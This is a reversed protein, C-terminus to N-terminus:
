LINTTTGNRVIQLSWVSRGNRSIITWTPECLSSVCPHRRQGASTVVRVQRYTTIFYQNPIPAASAGKSVQGASCRPSPSDGTALHDHTYQSQPRNSSAPHPLVSNPCRAVLRQLHRGHLLRQFPPCSPQSPSLDLFPLSLDFFPQLRDLFPLSCATSRVADTLPTDMCLNNEYLWGGGCDYDAVTSVYLPADLRAREDATTIDTALDTSCLATDDAAAFRTSGSVYMNSSGTPIGIELFSHHYGIMVIAYVIVALQISRHTLMLVPDEVVQMKSTRYTTLQGWLSLDSYYEKFTVSRGAAMSIPGAPAHM